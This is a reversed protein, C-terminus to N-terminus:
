DQAPADGRWAAAIMQEIPARDIPRPNAYPNRVATEAARAIGDEPMGIDALARPLALQRALDFLGQPANASHLARAVRTMAEPAAAANYAAAHPLVIAHTEAHPLNFMGGLVHCLKHHLSMGVAGLCVGCLWAGYLADRRAGPDAPAVMIRPLARALAAIGDEAMLSTLPNADPAYLAEVAHAIANLGSAASIHPPLSVTLDVDYIVTDPVLDQSQQTTKIGNSTEGLIPTMESGAYTTPMAIHPLGTRLSLAKGLGVTSGGGIAVLGDIDRSEVIRLAENTVEVPTHMRAGTFLGALRDGLGAGLRRGLDHQESTTLVFARKIGLRAAEEGLRASTGTGFLVRYQQSCYAFAGKGADGATAVSAGGGDALAISM